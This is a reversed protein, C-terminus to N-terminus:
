RKVQSAPRALDETEAERYKAAFHMNTLLKRHAADPEHGSTEETWASHVSPSLHYTLTFDLFPPYWHVHRVVMFVGATKTETHRVYMGWPTLWVRRCYYVTFLAAAAIALIKILTM